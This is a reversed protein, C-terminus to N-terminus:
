STVPEYWVALVGDMKRLGAAVADGPIRGAHEIARQRRHARAAGLATRLIGRASQESVLM